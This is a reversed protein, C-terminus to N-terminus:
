SRNGCPTLHKHPQLFVAWYEYLWDHVVVAATYIDTMMMKCLSLQSICSLLSRFCICCFVLWFFPELLVVYIVCSHYLHSIFDASQLWLWVVHGTMTPQWHRGVIEVSMAQDNNQHWKQMHWPHRCQRRVLRSVLWAMIKALLMTPWCHRNTHCPSRCDTPM